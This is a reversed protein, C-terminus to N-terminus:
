YESQTNILEASVMKSDSLSFNGDFAVTQTVVDDQGTGRGWDRFSMPALTIELKPNTGTGITEDTNEITLLCARKTGDLVYDKYTEDDFVAEMDGSLVFAKNVIDSPESSGLNQWDEVNKNFTLNFARLDVASATGLAAITAAFKVSVHTALFSKEASYSPSSSTDAGVKSMFGASFKVYDKLVCNISLQNLMGLAYKEDVNGDDHFITLAPHQNDNKRTFTHTYVGSEPDDDSTSWTGLCAALLLGFSKSYAIGGFSGEGLKEVVEADSRGDIVGLGSSDVAYDARPNFDFDVKPLWFTASDEATGRTGEKALGVNILRGIITTM